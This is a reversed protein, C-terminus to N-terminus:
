PSLQLRIEGAPHAASHVNVYLEGHQFGAYQAVTLKTGTPVSWTNPASNTLTVVIPGNAGAAGQHIHAMTGEIGSTNVAGTVGMDSTVAITSTASAMTKVSPVEQDGSLIKAPEAALVVGGAFLFASVIATAASRRPNSGLRHSHM